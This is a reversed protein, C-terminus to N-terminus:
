IKNLVYVIRKSKKQQVLRELRKSKCRQPDRADLVVLLVDAADVIAEVESWSSKNTDKMKKKKQSHQDLDEITDEEQNRPRKGHKNSKDGSNKQQVKGAPKKTPKKTSGASVVKAKNGGAVIKASAPKSLNALVLVHIHTLLSTNM